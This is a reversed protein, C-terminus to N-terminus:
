CYIAPEEQVPTETALVETIAPVPTESQSGYNPFLARPSLPTILALPNAVNLFPIESQYNQWLYLVSVMTCASVMVNIILYYFLRKWHKM